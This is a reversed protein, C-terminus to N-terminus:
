TEARVLRFRRIALGSLWYVLLSWLAAAVVLIMGSVWLALMMVPAGLVYGAQAMWGIQWWGLETGPKMLLPWYLAQITCVFVVATILLRAAFHKQPLSM